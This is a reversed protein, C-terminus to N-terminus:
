LKPALGWHWLRSSQPASHGKNANNEPIQYSAHGNRLLPQNAMLLNPIKGNRWIHSLLFSLHRYNDNVDVLGVKHLLFIFITSIPTTM